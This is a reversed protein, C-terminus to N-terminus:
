KKKKFDGRKWSQCFETWKFPNMINMPQQQGYYVAQQSQKNQYYSQNEAGSKVMTARLYDLVNANTNNQAIAYPDDEITWNKFAYDFEDGYPLPRIITEPLYFTDQVMLQVVNFFRGEIDHPIVYQKTKYGIHSFTLTDGKSCALSFVGVGTSYTGRQKSKIEVAVDPIARLSDATMTIGTIQIIDLVSNQATAIVPIGMIILTITLINNFYRKM